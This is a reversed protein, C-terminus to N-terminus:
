LINNIILNSILVLSLGSVLSVAIIRLSKPSFLANRMIQSISRNKNGLYKDVVDLYDMDDLRSIMCLTVAAYVLLYVLSTLINTNYSIPMLEFVLILVFIYYGRADVRYSGTMSSLVLTSVLLPLLSGFLAAFRILSWRLEHSDSVDVGLYHAKYLGFLVMFLLTFLMFLRPGKSKETFFVVLVYLPLATIMILNVNFVTSPESMLKTLDIGSLIVTVVVFIVFPWVKKFICIVTWCTVALIYFVSLVPYKNGDMTVNDTLMLYPVWLFYLAIGALMLFHLITFGGELIKEKLDKFM